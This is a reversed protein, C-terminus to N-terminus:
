PLSRHAERSSGLPCVPGSSEDELSKLNRKRGVLGGSEGSPHEQAFQDMQAFVERSFSAPFPDPKVVLFRRVGVVRPDGNM